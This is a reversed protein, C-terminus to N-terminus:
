SWNSCNQITLSQIWSKQNKMYNQIKWNQSCYSPFNEMKWSLISGILCSPISGKWYSQSNEMKWSPISGKWSKQTWDIWYSQFSV